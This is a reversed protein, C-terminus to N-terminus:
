KEKVESLYTQVEYTPTYNIGDFAAKRQMCHNVFNFLEDETFFYGETTKLEMFSIKSSNDEIVVNVKKIKM